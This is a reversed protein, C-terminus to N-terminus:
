RRRKVLDGCGACIYDFEAQLHEHPTATRQVSQEAAEMTQLGRHFAVDAVMMSFNAVDASEAIINPINGDMVAQLLERYEKHIGELLDNLYCDRWGGKHDNAQLKQEMKESFWKVEKRPEM